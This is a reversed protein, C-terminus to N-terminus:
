TLVGRKDQAMAYLLLLIAVVYIVATFIAGGTGMIQLGESLWFSYISNVVMGAISVMFAWVAWRKRLLLGISGAVAGWVGFAWAAVSWSPFSMFYALQEETFNALYWEIELQTALYDFAGILNWLLSV